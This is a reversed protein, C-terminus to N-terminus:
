LNEKIPFGGIDHGPFVKTEEPLYSYLRRLSAQLKEESGGPLDTRGWSHYFITDGSLLVGKVDNYLCVSGETHGPTHFVKWESASSKWDGENDSIGSGDNEVNLSAESFCDLLTKGEELFGDAEPLDSVFPVFEGFGMRFLGAGQSVGSDPGILHSDSKHIFIPINKYARRLSKLGAVHDFHGHTLVICVPILGNQELHRSVVFEDDTFESCAPDVIFVFPGELHVIYTNM